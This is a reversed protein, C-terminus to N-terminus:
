PLLFRCQNLKFASQLGCRAVIQAARDSIFQEGRIMPDFWLEPGEVASRHVIVDRGPAKPPLKYGAEPRMPYLPRCKQTNERDVTDRANAFELLYFASDFERTRDLRLVPMRSLRGNGLDVPGFREAIDESLFVMSNITFIKARSLMEAIRDESMSDTERMFWLGSPRLDATLGEGVRYRHDSISIAQMNEWLTNQGPALLRLPMIDLMSNVMPSMTWIPADMMGFYIGRVSAAKEIDFDCRSVKKFRVSCLSNLDNQPPM